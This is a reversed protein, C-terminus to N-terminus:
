RQSFTVKKFPLGNGFVHGGVTLYADILYNFQQSGRRLTLFKHAPLRPHMSQSSGFQFPKAGLMSGLFDKPEQQSESLNIFQDKFEGFMDSFFRNTTDCINALLLKVRYNALLAKTLTEGRLDGGSAVQVLPISQAASVHALMSSRAVSQVLSEFEADACLYQFEDRVICCISDPNKRRLAAEQVMMTVLSQFLMGGQQYVLIPMDLICCLGGLLADPTFSSQPACVTEYMPSILFPSLVSSVSQIGSGRCNEGLHVQKKIFFEGAKYLARDEAATQVRKDARLLTQWCASQAKFEESEAQEATAPSTLIVDYIHEITTEPGYAIWAIWTAFHLYDFFLGQWFAENSSGGPSSNSLQKNLRDLLRALSAPSGGPRTLEYGVFNFTFNGPSLRRMASSKATTTIVSEANDAEDAKCCCWLASIDRVPGRYSPHFPHNLVWKLLIRLVSTKGSGTTGMAFVGSCIDQIDLGLFQELPPKARSRLNLM